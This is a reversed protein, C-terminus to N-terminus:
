EMRFNIREIKLLRRFGYDDPQLDQHNGGCPERSLNRCERLSTKFLRCFAITIDNNKKFRVKLTLAHCVHLNNIHPCCWCLAICFKPFRYCRGLLDLKQAFHLTVNCFTEFRGIFEHRNSFAHTLYAAIIFRLRHTVGGGFRLAEQGPVV